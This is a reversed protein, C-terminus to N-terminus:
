AITIAYSYEFDAGAELSIIGEKECLNGSVEPTDNIGYWPEICVFPAGPKAWLGIYPANGYDVRVIRSGSKTTIEVGHSKMGSFVLADDDFLHETIEINKRREMFPKTSTRFSSKDFVYTSLTEYEDFKIFDGMACNFAPHAGISFFMKDTGTNKVNYTVTLTKGSLAYSICLEFDFPYVRKTDAGSCLLFQAATESASVIEFNSKRAFGHKPLYYKEGGYEYSDGFLRGVIPFLVPSQGSWYASDGSWIFERKTRLNKMSSLEAGYPDIGVCVLNNRLIILTRM